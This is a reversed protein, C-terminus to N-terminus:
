SAATELGGVAGNAMLGITFHELARILVEDTEFAAQASSDFRFSGMVGLFQFKLAGFLMFVKSANVSTSYAPMVPVWRIEFGDLTPATMFPQAGSGKIQAQPNYPKDGATNFGSLVQEFSPHMYYAGQRLAGADPVARLARVNALTVNSYHTKTSSLQVVKSNDITSFCLGKVSGNQGSGAGTSMFFNYDEVLAINRAAYETIFNGVAIFSDESMESPMRILGGFKEATFTVWGLAPSKETVTGSAAILGFTPDTTLKALKTIGTPLPFVTGYRRADGYENVLATVESGYGTPMPIDSTTLASKQQLGLIEDSRHILQERNKHEALKGSREAAKVYIASAYEACADSVCSGFSREGGSLAQKRLGILQMSMKNVLAKMEDFDKNTDDYQKKLSKVGTLLKGEFDQRSMEEDDEDNTGAPYMLPAAAALVLAGGIKPAAFLGILLSPLLCVALLALLGFAVLVIVRNKETVRKRIYNKSM